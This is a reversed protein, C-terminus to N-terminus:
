AHTQRKLPACLLARRARGRANTRGEGATAGSPHGRDDPPKRRPAARAPADAHRTSSRPMTRTWLPESAVNRPRAGRAICSANARITVSLHADVSQHRAGGQRSKQREEDRRSCSHSSAAAPHTTARRRDHAATGYAAAWARAARVPAEDEFRSLPKVTPEPEAEPTPSAESSATPGPTSSAQLPKDAAREESGGCAALLGCSAVLATAARAVYARRGM